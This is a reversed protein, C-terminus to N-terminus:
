GAVAAALALLFVAWRCRKPSRWMCWTRSYMGDASGTKRKSAKASANEAVRNVVGGVVVVLV